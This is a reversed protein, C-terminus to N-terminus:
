VVAPGSATLIFRRPAGVPPSPGSLDVIHLTGIWGGAFKKTWVVPFRRSRNGNPVWGADTAATSYFAIIADSATTDTFTVIYAPGDWGSPEFLGNDRWRAPVSEAPRALQASLPLTAFVPDSRLAALRRNGPDGTGPQPGGCAALGALAVAVLRIAANV